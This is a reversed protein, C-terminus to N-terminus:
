SILKETVRLSAMKSAIAGLTLITALVLLLNELKFKVPYPLTPTIPIFGYKMQLLVAISGLLLGIFLGILTMLIGNYFFIKRIEKLSVGLFYLTNINGRKELIIM